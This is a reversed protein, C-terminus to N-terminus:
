EEEDDFLEDGGCGCECGQIPTLDSPNTAKTMPKSSRRTNSLQQTVLKSMLKSYQRIRKRV